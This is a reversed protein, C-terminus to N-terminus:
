PTVITTSSITVAAVRAFLRGEISAGSNVSISQDALITGKFVTSTGLTASTGVQWFINSALAGGILLIERGSTTSLTSAIQIIFVSNPNGKADFTLNDSSIELSGNSKYLGPTLTLGGINGSLTVLDTSTRVFIENYAITLDSKAALLGAVDTVSGAPGAADVTYVTGTIENSGLGTIESGTAPSLGINGTISSTPINSILSGALIVYNISAGLDVNPQLVTQDVIVNTNSNNDDDKSCSASMVILPITLITLIKKIQM